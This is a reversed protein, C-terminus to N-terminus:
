FKRPEAAAGSVDYWLKHAHVRDFFSHPIKKKNDADGYFWELAESNLDFFAGRFKETKCFFELDRSNNKPESQEAGGYQM